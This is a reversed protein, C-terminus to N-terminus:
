LGGNNITDEMFLTAGDRAFEIYNVGGITTTGNNTWGTSVADTVTDSAGGWVFLESSERTMALVERATLALTNGNDALDIVDLDRFQHYGMTTLDLTVGSMDLVLADTGRGGDIRRFTLDSVAIADAGAGSAATDMGGRTAISDDGDTGVIHNVAANGTLGGYTLAQFDRGWLVNVEGTDTGNDEGEESSLILDQYGNGNIDALACNKGFEDNETDGIIKFGTAGSLTALDITARATGTEGYLVWAAGATTGGEADEWGTVLLDDIGDADVDGVCLNHSSFDGASEGWVVFGQPSSLSDVNIDPYPASGAGYIVATRGAETRGNPSAWSQGVIVDTRGDGNIDGGHVRSGLRSDAVSTTITFGNTGDLSTLDVNTFTPGAHGFVVYARGANSAGDDAGVEGLVIDNYGDDNYDGIFQVSNGLFRDGANNTLRFGESGLNALDIDARTTGSRGFVLYVVGSETGSQDSLSHGILLDNIGDGNFDGSADLFNFPQTNELDTEESDGLHNNDEHGIIRFGNSNDISSVNIDARTSGPQGWIVYVTGAHTQGRDNQGAAVVIDDYGDGNLDGSLTSASGLRNNSDEGFIAFGDSSETTSQLTQLDIDSRTEGPTGFIVYAVGADTDFQDDDTIGILFDEYGDGNIDAGGSISQAFEANSDWGRLFFGNANTLGTIDLNPANVTIAKNASLSGTDGPAPLTLDANAYSTSRIAGGNRILSDTAVYGLDATTDGPTIEYVFTLTNTGSGATYNITKNRDDLQIRIQPFGTVSVSESFTATISIEDASAYTGDSTSASVNTVTPTTVNASQFNLATPDTIGAYFEGNGDSFANGDIEVYYGTDPELTDSFSVSLTQTGEGSVQDSSAAVAEFLSDDSTRRLRIDGTEAVTNLNFTLSLDTNLAVGTTNDAPTTSDLLLPADTTFGWGSPDTIGAYANGVADELATGDVTVYYDTGIALDSSPDITITNTGSGSVNGGTVAFQEFVSDDASRRITIDGSAASVPESFVMELNTGVAADSTGNAPSLSSVTPDTADITVALISSIGSTNGADDTAQATIDYDGDALSTATHDFQWNGSNDVPTTGISSGDVFVEVTANAEGTGDFVLTADGTIQDGDTATDDTIGTVTPAAIATDVTLTRTPSVTSTNGAADTAQTTVSYDGDGLSTATHDLGWDGNGDPTATGIPSGDLFVTVTTNAESTGEIILTNDRTILDSTGSGTDDTIGTVAPEAVGTDVTFGLAASAPSTNGATDAAVATVNYSGDALVTGTHDFSWNGSGDATTTGISVGDIFVEIGVGPDSAGSFRLTNDATIRDTTSAGTDTDLGSVAPAAPAQQDVTLSQAGSLGSRNGAPDMVEHTLSYTGSGLSTDTHDLQWQGTADALTTGISGGDIFLEVRAGAETDGSFTLEGSSTIWDGAVGSDPTIALNTATTPTVTDVSVTFPSTSDATNGAPDTVRATYSYDGDSLTRGGGDFSWNGSADTTITAVPTGDRFLEVSTDPESTGTLTVAPDNTTGDDPQVGTDNAVQISPSAVSSDVVVPYIVSTASSENDLITEAHLNYSGDALSRDSYDLSWDGNQDAEVTGVRSGNIFVEVPVTPTAIGSVTLAGSRTIGDGADRGTDPAIALIEPADVADPLYTFEFASESAMRQGESGVSALTVEYLGTEIPHEQYDFTWQGEGNGLASGIFRGDLYIEVSHGAMAHGAFGITGDKIVGSPVLGNDTMVGEVAPPQPRTPDRTLPAEVGGTETGGNTGNEAETPAAQDTTTKPGDSEDGGCATLLLLAALALPPRLGTRPFPMSVRAHIFRTSM